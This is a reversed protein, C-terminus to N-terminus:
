VFHPVFNVFDYAFALFHGVFTLLKNVFELVQLENCADFLTFLLAQLLLQLIQFLMLWAEQPLDEVVLVQLSHALIFDFSLDLTFM